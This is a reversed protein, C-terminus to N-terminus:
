DPTSSRPQRPLRVLLTLGTDNKTGPRIPADCRWRVDLYCPHYQYQKGAIQIPGDLAQGNVARLTYSGARGLARVFTLEAELEAATIAVILTTDDPAAVFRAVTRPSVGVQEMATWLEFEGETVFAAQALETPGYGAERVTQTFPRTTVCGAALALAALLPLRHRRAM